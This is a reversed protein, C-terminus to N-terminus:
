ILLWAAGLLLALAIAVVAITAITSGHVHFHVNGIFIQMFAFEM